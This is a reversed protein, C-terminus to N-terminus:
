KWFRLILVEALLMFLALIIFLKWLQSEKEPTSIIKNLLRAANEAVKYYKIGSTKMLSDLNDVSYFKMESELRNQNFALLMYVTDHSVLKYFGAKRIGGDLSIRIKGGTREQMPIFSYRGKQSIIRLAEDANAPLNNEISLKEDKGLTYFLKGGHLNRTAIGYLLVSFLPHNMLNTFEPSLPVSLLYVNGNGFQRSSILDDGNLLSVPNNIGSNISYHIPYHKYILPFDVNKPIKVIADSFLLNNKKLGIVRDSVTDLQSFRGSHLSHLLGNIVLGDPKEPPIILLTGGKKVFEQLLASLGSSVNDLGNIIIFNFDQITYNSLRNTPLSLFRFVSDSTFFAKLYSNGENKTTIELVSVKSNVYFAFLLQNDFTIPFDEIQVKGKHWGQKAIIFGMKAITTGHPPINIGALAKQKQDVFLKLRIKEVPEDAANRIRVNMLVQKGPLLDPRVFWCSDIYINHTIMHKFPLLYYVSTTDQPLNKLDTQNIQFDSFLFSRFSSIKNKSALYRQRTLITSLMRRYSGIQMKEIISLVEKKGLLVHSRNEPKNSLVFFRADQPSKRVLNLAQKRAMDFLRGTSGSAKMSYSNDLYLMNTGSRGAERVKENNLFYPGAFAIVTFIVVLIRLLLVILHKLKNQRKTEISINKLFAINSFLLKRYRRFNFLHVIVPIAIALLAYLLEPHTFRM